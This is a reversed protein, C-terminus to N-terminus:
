FQLQKLDSPNREFQGSASSYVQLHQRGNLFARFDNKRM